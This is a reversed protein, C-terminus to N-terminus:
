GALTLAPNDRRTTKERTVKDMDRAGALLKRWDLGMAMAPLIGVASLLSTRGGVWDWIEFRGLWDAAQKELASDKMTIAVAQSAFPVGAKAYAAEAVVKGA